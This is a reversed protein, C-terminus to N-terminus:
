VETCGFWLCFFTIQSKSWQWKCLKGSKEDSTKVCEDYSWLDTCFNYKGNGDVHWKGGTCKGAWHLILFIMITTRM